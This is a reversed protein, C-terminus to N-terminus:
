AYSRLEFGKRYERRPHANGDPAPQLLEGLRLSLGGRVPLGNCQLHEGLRLLAEDFEPVARARQVAEAFTAEAGRRLSENGLHCLAASLHGQWADASLLGRDGARVAAVFNAAHDGPQKWEKLKKGALDCAYGGEYNPLVVYGHECHVVVGVDAGLFRDMADVGPREPLGRVEFVIPVSYGFWAVQSNPTEGDDDYGFRGGASWVQAPLADHGLAWRCLDMQHVGQNGLDGNGFDWQWHWDYHFQERRVPQEPAPGLWVDYDVSPPPTKAAAVKGISKRRKYCLGRALKPKGLEGSRVFAIAQQMGPSSRSQTGCAVVRGHKQAAAALQAGEWVDHSVPKEVYAHLGHECAWAGLLAHTHNPTAIVVADVIKAAFLARPDTFAEVRDGRKNAAAVERDLVERDCDCLAALEVGPQKRFEGALGRGRGNLGIVGIRLARNAGAIRAYSSATLPSGAAALGLGAATHRLFTRRTPEASPQPERM